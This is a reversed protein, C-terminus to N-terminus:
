HDSNQSITSSGPVSEFARYLFVAYQARTVAQDPLYKGNTGLTIGNAYLISIYDNAWHGSSIDSFPHKQQGKLNLALVLIKAMQARTLQDKPGFKGNTGSFIGALQTQKIENYFLYTKPVDLFDIVSQVKPELPISRSFLVAVHDRRVTELPQFTNDSYGSIIKRIKLDSIEQYAWYKPGVDTFDMLIVPTYDLVQINVNASQGGYTVRITSKGAKEFLIKGKEVDAISPGEISWTADDTVNLITRDKLTVQATLSFQDGINGKLDMRDITLQIAPNGTSPQNKIPTLMPIAQILGNGYLPDRGIQGLDITHENLLERLEVNTLTPYAQKLLALYGSVYPAAMSTGSLSAYGGNLYTSHIGVGPAVLEVSPGTSSFSALNKQQDVAGVAIVSEYRAPYDITDGSGTGDNGAAAVFLIGNEYATDLITRFAPSGVQAGLSMNIIDMGNTISWDIGAFIDSLYAKGDSSFAKVAYLEADSAVGKYGILNDKSGIIGAVHTGHGNDDNYSTTYDVFSQGGSIVLDDHLSIGSDIIAIKVGKGTYGNAWSTPINIAPIGWNQVQNSNDVIIDPEVKLIEGNKKLRDLDSSLITVAAIPAHELELNMEGNESEILKKDVENKFTIIVRQEKDNNALSHELNFFISFGLVIPTLIKLNVLLTM